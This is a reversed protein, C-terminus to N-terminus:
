RLHEDLFAAMREHFEIRAKETELAHGENDFALYEPKLGHKQLAAVMRESQDVTVRVDKCGHSIFVPAKVQDVHLLPSHAALIQEDNRPNGVKAYLEPLLPEWYGPLRGLFTLLDSIGARDVAAAYLKPTFTVGVLAAYGGYSEGYIAIRKPDATGRGILWKVGVDVDDQMKGGWEKFGAQWFHKGYGLSGRFNMQLVAYGRNALFQV